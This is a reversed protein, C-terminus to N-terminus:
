TARKIRRGLTRLPVSLSKLISTDISNLQCAKRLYLDPHVIDIPLSSATLSVPEPSQDNGPHLKCFLLINQRYWFPIQSDLWIRDRVLDRVVYGQAAFLGVWYHQWQENLHNSGGQFPIAASFLITDSLDTLSLIFDRASNEPLHEAVELSIALDYRRLCNFRVSLDVQQFCDEPIALLDRDVWDGDIGHIDVIGKEKLVALWTGVGCGVDVASRISPLAELLISLVVNASHLTGQHRSRYFDRSYSQM